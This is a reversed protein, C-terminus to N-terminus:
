MNVPDPFLLVTNTPDFEPVEPFEHLNVQKEYLSRNIQFPVQAPCLVTAHMASSKSRTEGPHHVRVFIFGLVFM